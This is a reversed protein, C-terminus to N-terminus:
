LMEISIEKLVKIACGLGFLNRVPYSLTLITLYQLDSAFLSFYDIFADFRRDNKLWESYPCEKPITRM